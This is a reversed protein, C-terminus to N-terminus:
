VRLRWWVKEVDQGEGEEGGGATRLAEGGEWVCLGPM